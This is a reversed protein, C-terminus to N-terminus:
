LRGFTKINGSISYFHLPPMEFEICLVLDYNLGLAASKSYFSRDKTSDAVKEEVKERWLEGWLTGSFLVIIM